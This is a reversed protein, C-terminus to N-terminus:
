IQIDNELLALISNFLLAQPPLLLSKSIRVQTFAFHHDTHKSPSISEHISSTTKQTLPEYSIRNLNYSESHLNIQISYAAHFKRVLSTKKM